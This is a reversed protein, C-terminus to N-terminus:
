PTHKYTHPYHKNYIFYSIIDIKISITRESVKKRSMKELFSLITGM